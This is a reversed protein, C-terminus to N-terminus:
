SGAANWVPARRDLRGRESQPQTGVLDRVAAIEHRDAVVARHDVEGAAMRRRLVRGLHDGREVLLEPAVAHREMRAHLVAVDDDGRGLPGLRLARRRM